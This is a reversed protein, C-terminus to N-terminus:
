NHFRVVTISGDTNRKAEWQAPMVYLRARERCMEIACDLVCEEIEASNTDAQDNAYAEDIENAEYASIHYTNRKM